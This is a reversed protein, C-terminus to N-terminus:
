KLCIKLCLGASPYKCRSLEFFGNIRDKWVAYQLGINVDKADYEAMLNVGNMAKRWFSDGPLGFRFNVGFAPGNMPNDIRENYIYTAHVGLNGVKAFEFHKTVALFYRNWYGNGNKTQSLGDDGASTGIDNSGIVIQPTWKKWWGEKWLRLRVSYNRDQNKMYVGISKNAWESFITCTYAVELWPFITVNLYYNWTNYDWRPPTTTDDLYGGGIMVTKDKQMDATPMELLGTTGHTFQAHASVAALALVLSLISKKMSFFRM